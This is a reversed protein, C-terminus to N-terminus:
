QIYSIELSSASINGVNDKVCILYTGNDNITFKNSTQFSISASNCLQGNHLELYYGSIGSGNRDSAVVNVDKSSTYIFKNTVTIQNEYIIPAENDIKLDISSKYRKVESSSDDYITIQFTYKTNLTANINDLKILNSGVIHAGSSSSWVCKNVECDIDVSDSLAQLTIAGDINGNLWNSVNSITGKSNSALIDISANDEQLKSLDCIGNDDYNTKDIFQANYYESTKKMEVVYCNMRDNNTPDIINGERDDSEIYGEEVLEDVFILTKGTDFAYKSAAVEIREVLNERQSKRIASSISNVGPIAIGFILALVVISMLLEILTFGKSDM